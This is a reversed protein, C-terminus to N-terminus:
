KKKKLCFVAYSIEAQRTPESIHILSLDKGFWENLGISIMTNTVSATVSPIPNSASGNDELTTHADVPATNDVGSYAAILLEAYTGSAISITYTSPESGGALKWYSAIRLTTGSTTTFNDIQTWGTFTFAHSGESIVHAVLIDGSATGTPKNCVVSSTGSANAAARFAIAM